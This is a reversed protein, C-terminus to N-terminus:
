VAAESDADSVALPDPRCAEGTAPIASSSAAAASSSATSQTGNGGTAAASANGPRPVLQCMVTAECALKGDVTATGKM